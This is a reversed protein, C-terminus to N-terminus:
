KIVGASLWIVQLNGNIEVGSELAFRESISEIQCVGIEHM